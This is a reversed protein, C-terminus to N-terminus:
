GLPPGPDKGLVKSCVAARLRMAWPDPRSGLRKPESAGRSLSSLGGPRWKRTLPIIHPSAISPPPDYSAMQLRLGLLIGTLDFMTHERNSSPTSLAVLGEGSVGAM